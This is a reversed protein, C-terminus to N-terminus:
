KGKIKNGYSEMEPFAKILNVLLQMMTISDLGLDLDFIMDEQIM